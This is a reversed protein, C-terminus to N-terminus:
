KLVKKAAVQMQDVVRRVGAIAMVVKTYTRRQMEFQLSGVLTVNGHQVMARIRDQSVGARMLREHVIKLLDKDSVMDM